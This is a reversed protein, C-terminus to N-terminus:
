GEVFQSKQVIFDGEKVAIPDTAEWRFHHRGSMTPTVVCYFAGESSTGVETDTGYTYSRETGDPRMLRFKVADPEVPTGAACNGFEVNLSIQVGIYYPGPHMGM